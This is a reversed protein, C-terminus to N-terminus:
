LTFAGLSADPTLVINNGDPTMPLNTGADYFAILNSTAEVGTHFYYIVQEYQDGAVATFTVATHTFKGATISKGALAGSTSVRAGAPVDSLFDHAASYTYDAGDILIVRVDDTLLRAAFYNDWAEPYITSAM